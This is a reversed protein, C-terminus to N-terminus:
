RLKISILRHPTYDITIADGDAALAEGDDELIDTLCAAEFPLAVRLTARGRAGHCEYLRLVLADDDEALKVTDLVLDPTDVSFFSRPGPAGPTLLLPANFRLGEAVVGGERWGGAHPYLAYTFEHEGRDAKPDPLTSSRLLSLHIVNDRTAFGYKSETLLAAGFGHESLDAWRHAPVEFKAVAYTDNYHTPREVSGFQMEYTANMASADIPFAAKLLTKSERWGVRTHFELRKGDADLRVTQVMTSAKGIAREFVVEARLPDRLGVRCSSAPPCPRVTELHFPDVDWADYRTPQDDYLLLANGPAAFTQRGTPKHLLQRLSGDRSLTARLTANELTVTEGDEAVVVADDTSGLAGVGYAPATAFALAGDPLGVVEARDVGLTNVPTPQDGEGAVIRAADDRLPRGTSQIAEYDAEAERYVENISSGPLIDHFQNLLLKKWMGDLAARDYAHGALRHAVAGLAEIDHLLWEGKRNGRKTRAQTTYTGRHYEFYLEGVVTPLARADREIREFFAESSRQECRPVGLLDRTRRLAELMTKTPGGGGDGHGFLYYAENSRGNDKYAAVHRRLQAIHCNANYTDAPPFHTFVESGDIGRWTFTHHLPQNFRNWSLKQTLFRRIGAQRMIQPLQGNYGFVDPNWFETCRRGFTKQFYRQGYLFQRCLSEGSPINCDPEIYSGGVVIWQGADVKACIRDFLDPHLAAMREYQYAQSCAFRYEPYDDMYRVASSFSRVCKRDTEALPWLWATDIHAHGVASLEHAFPANPTALLDKLIRHAEPWSDRDAEDIVNCFRNLEFLLRGGWAKDLDGPRDFSPWMDKSPGATQENELQSLVLLDHYIEWALPDFVGLECRKLHYEFKPGAGGGGGPEVGWLANCAQEVHVTLSEGGAAEALLVADDRAGDSLENMGQMARGDIWLQAESRSSWLLDVRRGKWSAPVTAEIRFWHTAWPPGLEMGIEAPKLPLEMAQEYPVRDVPESVLLADPPATEPHIRGKFRDTIQQIRERTYDPAPLM